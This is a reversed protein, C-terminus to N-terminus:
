LSVSTACTNAIVLWCPIPASCQPEPGLMPVCLALMTNPTEKLGESVILRKLFCKRHRGQPRGRWHRASPAAARRKAHLTFTQTGGGWQRRSNFPSPLNLCLPSFCRFANRTCNQSKREAWNLGLLIGGMSAPLQSSSVNPSAFLSPTSLM